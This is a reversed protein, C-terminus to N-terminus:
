SFLCPPGRPRSRQCLADRTQAFNYSSRSLRLCSPPRPKDAYSVTAADRPRNQSSCSFTGAGCDPPCPKTLVSGAIATKTQRSAKQSPSEQAPSIDQQEHLHESTSHNDTVSDHRDGDPVSQPVHADCSEEQKEPPPSPKHDPLNVHCSGHACSGAEHPALGTCCSMTCLQASSSLGLTASGSVLAVSLTAAILIRAVLTLTFGETSSDTRM